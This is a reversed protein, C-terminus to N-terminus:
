GPEGGGKARAAEQALRIIQNGPQGGVVAQFAPLFDRAQAVCITGLRNLTAPSIGEPPFAPVTFRCYLRRNAHDLGFGPLEVANNLIAIATEVDPIREPPVGEIMLHIIQLFPIKTEWRIFLNGPLPAAKSPLEIVQTAPDAAHPFKNDVLFALLEQFTTM